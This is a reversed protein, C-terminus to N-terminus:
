PAPTASLIILPPEEPHIERFRVHNLLERLRGTFLSDGTYLSFKAQVEKPFLKDVFAQNRKPVEVSRFSGDFGLHIVAPRWDSVNPSACAAWVYIQQGSRALLDWECLITEFTYTPLIGKALAAEYEKWQEVQIADPTIIPPFTPTPPLPTPPPPTFGPTFTPTITAPVPTFTATAPLATGTPAPTPAPACSALTLTLLAIFLRSKM